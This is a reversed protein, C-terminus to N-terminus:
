YGPLRSSGHARQLSMRAGTTSSRRVTLTSCAACLPSQLSALRKIDMNGPAMEQVARKTEDIHEEPQIHNHAGGFCVIHTNGNPLTGDGLAYTLKNFPYSIGTWSRMDKSSVEAHVKVCQNVHGINMASIRQPDLPPDFTITNLVNLPITSVLRAATYRRGDRTTLTVRDGQDKISRAPSNFVYSLKGTSLAEDFFRRAFSSQGRKFKSTILYEICGRYSYGCLAWWHLVEFFSTTELTGCSFLLIFGELMARENPSLSPAVANLRDRASMNDYERVKPVHFADHPYPM